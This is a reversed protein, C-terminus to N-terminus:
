HFGQNSQKKLLRSLTEIHVPEVCNAWVQRDSFTRDYCITMIWPELYGPVTAWNSGRGGPICVTVPEIRVDPLMREQSNPWSIIKEIAMRERQNLFPLQRNSTIFHASLVPLSGVLSAWSSYQYTLQSQGLHGLFFYRLATFCWCFLMAESLCPLWSLKWIERYFIWTQLVIYQPNKSFLRPSWCLMFSLFWSFVLILM